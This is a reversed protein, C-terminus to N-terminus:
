KQRWYKRKYGSGIVEGPELFRAWNYGKETLFKHQENDKDINGPCAIVMGGIKTIRELEKLEKELSDGLVHGCMVVDAFENGFPTSEILGDVTYINEFNLEKSKKKLFKRLNSVPEVCYVIKVHPAVIFAQKGTGSGVDVVIKNEWSTINLLEEENWGNFPQNDYDEPTLVYIVWDELKRIIKLEVERLEDKSYIKETKHEKLIKNVWQNLEPVKNRLYWELYPKSRIIIAFEAHLDMKELYKFHFEELLLLVDIPVEDLDKKWNFM